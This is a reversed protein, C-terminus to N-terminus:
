YWADPMSAKKRDIFDRLAEDATYRLGVIFDDGVPARVARLVDLPM